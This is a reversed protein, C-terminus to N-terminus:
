NTLENTNKVRGETTNIPKLFQDRIAIDDAYNTETLFPNAGIQQIMERNSMKLDLDERKNSLKFGNAAVSDNLISWTNEDYNLSSSYALNELDKSFVQRDEQEPEKKKFVRTTKEYPGGKTWKWEM